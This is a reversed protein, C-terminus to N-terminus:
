VEIRAADPFMTAFDAGGAASDQAMGGGIVPAPRAGPKPQAQIVPLLADAHMTAAGQINLTKAVHRHVQEASDFSMQALEGVWPKVDVLAKRVARENDRVAKTASDVAERIATTMEDHTMRKDEAGSKERAERERKEKEEPSEDVAAARQQAQKEAESVTGADGVPVRKPLMDMVHRIDDESMGKGQLFAPLEDHFTKGKDAEQFEKGVGEPIGLNSKGEAAAMMARHQPGSVSEDLSQEPQSGEPHTVKEVMSKVGAGLGEDMAMLTKGKLATKLDAVIKPTREAINKTTVGAFIPAYDVKADFALVPNFMRAANTVLAYELRTPLKTTMRTERSDQAIATKARQPTLLNVDIGLAKALAKRDTGFKRKLEDVLPDPVTEGRPFLIERAKARM